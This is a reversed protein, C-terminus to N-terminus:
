FVVMDKLPGMNHLICKKMTKWHFHTDEAHGCVGRIHSCDVREREQKSWRKTLTPWFAGFSSAERECSMSPLLTVKLGGRPLQCERNQTDTGGM